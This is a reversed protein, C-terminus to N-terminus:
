WEHSLDPLIFKPINSQNMEYQIWPGLDMQSTNSTTTNNTVSSITNSMDSRLPRVQFKYLSKVCRCSEHVM